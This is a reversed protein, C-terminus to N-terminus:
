RGRSARGRRARGVGGLGTVCGVSGDTPESRPAILKSQPADRRPAEREGAPDPARPPWAPFGTGASDQGSGSRATSSPSPRGARCPRRRHRPTGGLPISAQRPPPLASTEHVIPLQRASHSSSSHRSCAIESTQRFCVSRRVGCRTRALVPRQLAPTSIKRALHRVRRPKSRESRPVSRICEASCGPSIEM